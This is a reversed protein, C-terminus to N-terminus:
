QLFGVDDIYWVNTATTSLTQNQDQIFFKYISSPVTGNPFFDALPITYTNWQNLTPTAPGYKATTVDVTIGTPKDGVYLFASHWKQGVVTPKLAFTLKSCGVVNFDWNLSYPQWGAYINDTIKIDKSGSLPAGTTDNYDVTITGYSYDGPWDFVGAHYVWSLNASTGGCDGAVVDGSTVDLAVDTTTGDSASQVDSPNADPTSADNSTTPSTSCGALLLAGIWAVM